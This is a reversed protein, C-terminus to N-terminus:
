SSWRCRGRRAGRDLAGVERGARLNASPLEVSSAERGDVLLDRDLGVAVALEAPHDALASFIRCIKPRMLFIAGISTETTMWPSVPVPLSSTARAIWSSSARRLRAREHHEVAARNRGVQDLALQEAVLLAGEGARDGAAGPANSRALPPM